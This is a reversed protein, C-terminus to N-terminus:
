SEQNTSTSNLPCSPKITQQQLSYKNLGPLWSSESPSCSNFSEQNLCYDTSYPVPCSKLDTMIISDFKTDFTPSMVAASASSTVLAVYIAVLSLFVTIPTLDIRSRDTRM